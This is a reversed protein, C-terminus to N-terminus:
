DKFWNVIQLETPKNCKTCFFQKIKVWKQIKGGNRKRYYLSYLNGGCKPCKQNRMFSYVM